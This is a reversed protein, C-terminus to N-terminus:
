RKQEHLPGVVKHWKRAAEVKYKLCDFINRVQEKTYTKPDIASLVMIKQKDSDASKYVDLLLILEHNDNKSDDSGTLIELFETEQGPAVQKLYKETVSNM